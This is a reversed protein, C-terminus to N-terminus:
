RKPPILLVFPLIPSNPPPSQRQQQATPSLETSNDLPQTDQPQLTESESNDPARSAQQPGFGGQSTESIDDLDSHLPPTSIKVEGTDGPENDEIIEIESKSDEDAALQQQVVAEHKECTAMDLPMM